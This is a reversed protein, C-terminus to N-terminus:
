AAKVDKFANYQDPHDGDKLRKEIYIKILNQLKINSLYFDRVVDGKVAFCKTLQGNKKVIDKVQIRCIELTTMGSGLFFGM